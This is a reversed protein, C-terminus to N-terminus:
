MWRGTHEDWGNLRDAKMKAGSLSTLVPADKALAEITSASWTHGGTEYAQSGSMPTTYRANKEDWRAVIYRGDNLEYVEYGNYAERQARAANYPRDYEDPDYEAPDAGLERDMEQEMGSEQILDWEQNDIEMGAVEKEYNAPNDMAELYYENAERTHGYIKAQQFPNNM